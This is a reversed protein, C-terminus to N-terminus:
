FKQCRESGGVEDPRREKGRRRDTQRDKKERSENQALELQDPLDHAPTAMAVQGIGIAQHIMGPNHEKRRLFFPEGLVRVAQATM